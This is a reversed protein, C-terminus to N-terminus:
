RTRALLPKVGDDYLLVNKSTLSLTLNGADNEMAIHDYEKQIKFTFDGITKSGNTSNAYAYADGIPKQTQYRDFYNFDGATSPNRQELVTLTDQECGDRIMAVWPAEAAFVGRKNAEKWAELFSKGENLKEAFDRIIDVDGANAGPSRHWYGLVGRVNTSKLIRDYWAWGPHFVCFDVEKSTDDIGSISAGPGHIERHWQKLHDRETTNLKVLRSYRLSLVACGAIVLWRPTNKWAPVETWPDFVMQPAGSGRDQDHYWLQGHRWAHGSIYMLDAYAGQAGANRFLKSVLERQSDNQTKWTRLVGDQFYGKISSLASQKKLNEALNLPAYQLLAPRELASAFSKGDGTKTGDMVLLRPLQFKRRDIFAIAFDMAEDKYSAPEVLWKGSAFLAESDSGDNFVADAVDLETLLTRLKEMKLGHQANNKQVLLLIRGRKRDVAIIGRGVKAEKNYISKTWPTLPTPPKGGILLPGLGGFAVRAGLRQIGPNGRGIHLAAVTTADFDQALYYRDSRLDKNILRGERIVQGETAVGFYSSLFQGNIVVDPKVPMNAITDTLGEEHCELVTMDFHQADLIVYSFDGDTGTLLGADGLSQQAGRRFNPLELRPTVPPSLPLGILSFSPGNSSVSHTFRKHDKAVVLRYFLSRAKVHLRGWAKPHLTYKKKPASSNLREGTIEQPAGPFAGDGVWSDFWNAPTRLAKNKDHLLTLDTTVQVAYYPYDGDTEILFVPPPGERKYSPKEPAIKMPM